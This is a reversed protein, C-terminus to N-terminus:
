LFFFEDGQSHKLWELLAEVVMFLRMVRWM